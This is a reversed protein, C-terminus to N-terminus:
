LGDSRRFFILFVGSIYMIEIKLHRIRNNESVGLPLVAESQSNSGANQGKRLGSINTISKFIMAIM